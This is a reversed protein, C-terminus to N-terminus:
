KKSKDLLIPSWKIAPSLTVIVPLTIDTRVDVVDDDEVSLEPEVTLVLLTITEFVCNVFTSKHLLLNISNVNLSVTFWRSVYSKIM